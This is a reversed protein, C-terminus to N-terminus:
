ELSWNLTWGVAVTNPRMNLTAGIRQGPEVDIPPSVPWNWNEWHCSPYCPYNGISIGEALTADFYGVFGQLTGADSVQFQFERTMHRDNMNASFVIDEVVQAPALETPLERLGVMIPEARCPFDIAARLDLGHYDARWVGRFEDAYQVPVLYTKLRSPLIQGGPQLHRRAFAGVCEHINEDTGFDGILENIIVDVPEDLQITQVDGQLLHIRDSAGNAQVVREAVALSRPRNDIAYVRAAGAQVAMLALVGLGTGLDAVIDGPRVVQTIAERYRAMRLQDALMPQYHIAPHNTETFTEPNM